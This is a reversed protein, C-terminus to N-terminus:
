CTGRLFIATNRMHWGGCIKVAQLGVLSWAYKQIGWLVSCLTQSLFLQRCAPIEPPCLLSNPRWEADEDVAQKPTIIFTLFTLNCEAALATHYEEKINGGTHTHHHHHPPRYTPLSSLNRKVSENNSLQYSYSLVNRVGDPKSEVLCNWCQRRRSYSKFVTKKRKLLM